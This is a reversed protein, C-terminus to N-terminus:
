PRKELAQAQPPRGEAGVPPLQSTIEGLVVIARDLLGPPLLLMRQAMADVRTAQLEDVLARGKETLRVIKQRRDSADEARTVFGHCVLKDILMSTNALSFDLKAGIESISAAGRRAVVHLAAIRPMSLDERKILRLTDDSDWRLLEAM